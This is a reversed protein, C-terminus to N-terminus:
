LISNNTILYKKTWNGKINVFFIFSSVGWCDQQSLYINWKTNYATALNSAIATKHVRIKMNFSTRPRCSLKKELIQNLNWITNIQISSRSRIEIQLPRPALQFWCLSYNSFELSQLLLLLLKISDPLNRLTILFYYMRNSVTIVLNM